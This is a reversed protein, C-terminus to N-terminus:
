KAESHDNKNQFTLLFHRELQTTGEETEVHIINSNGFGSRTHQGGMQLKKPQLEM